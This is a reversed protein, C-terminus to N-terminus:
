KIVKQVNSGSQIFYVGSELKSMDIQLKSSSKTFSQILIGTSSVLQIENGISQDEVTLISEVPNPYIKFSTTSNTEIGCVLEHYHLRYCDKTSVGNEDMGTLIYGYHDLGDNIVFSVPAFWGTGPYNAITSWTGATIDYQYFEDHFTEVPEEIGIGSFVYNGLKFSAGAVRGVNPMDALTTWTDTQSNYSYFKNSPYNLSGSVIHGQSIYILNGDSAAVPHHM